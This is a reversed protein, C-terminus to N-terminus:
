TRLTMGLSMSGEVGRIASQCTFIYTLIGVIKSTTKNVITDVKIVTPEDRCSELLKFKIPRVEASEEGPKFWAVADIEMNVAKM